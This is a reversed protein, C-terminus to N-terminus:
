KKIIDDIRALTENRGIIEMVEFLSPSIIRGSLAARLPQVVIGLKLGCNESYTRIIDQLNQADWVELGGMLPRMNLLHQKGDGVIM